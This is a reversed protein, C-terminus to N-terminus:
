QQAQFSVNAFVTRLAETLDTFPLTAAAADASILYFGSTVPVNGAEIAARLRRRIRNRVVSGGAKKSIAYGVALEGV